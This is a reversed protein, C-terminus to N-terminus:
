LHNFCDKEAQLDNLQKKIEQNEEKLEKIMRLAEQLKYKEKNKKSRKWFQIGESSDKVDLYKKCSICEPIYRGSENVHYYNKEDKSRVYFISGCSYCTHKSIGM